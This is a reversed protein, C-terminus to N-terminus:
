RQAFTPKTRKIGAAAFKQNIDDENGMVWENYLADTAIVKSKVTVVDIEPFEEQIKELAKELRKSVDPHNAAEPTIQYDDVEKFYKEYDSDGFVAKAREGDGTSTTTVFQSKSKWSVRVNGIKASTEVTGNNRCVQKWKNQAVDLIAQEAQEMNAKADKQARNNEVWNDVDKQIGAPDIQIGKSKQAAPKKKKAMDKLAM